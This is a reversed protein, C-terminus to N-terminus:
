RCAVLPNRPLQDYMETDICSRADVREDRRRTRTPWSTTDVGTLDQEWLWPATRWDSDNAWRQARQRIPRLHLLVREVLDRIACPFQGSTLLAQSLLIRLERHRIGPNLWISLNGPDTLLEILKVTAPYLALRAEVEWAERDMAPLQSLAPHHQVWHSLRANDRVMEWARAHLDPNSRRSAALRRYAREAHATVPDYPRILQRDPRAGPGVWVMIGPHRLCLNEADHPVQRITEGGSCLTCGYRPTPYPAGAIPQAREIITTLLHPDRGALEVAMQARRVPRPTDDRRQRHLYRDVGEQKIHNKALVRDLYSDPAERHGWKVPVACPPLPVPSTTM